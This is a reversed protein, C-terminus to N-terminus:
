HSFGNAAASHISQRWSQRDMPIGAKWVEVIERAATIDATADGNVLVLDARLGPAIRGRDTLHFTSAPVSTAAALAQQATLGAKVLYELEGHMSIGPATGPNGADTGALIRVHAGALPPIATMSFMCNNPQGHNINKKLQALYEAAVYSSLRSDDLLHQGPSENCVSELVSFTPIVFAHREVVLTVFKPDVVEGGFAFLHALGDAGSEIADMAQQESHIHVVALKGRKHAAAVLAQLTPKDISPRGGHGTDGGIEYIIKIFDSGEAIRDDVWRQAGEPGTLTPFRLGYETGHGGPATACYGSSFLDARDAAKNANQEAKEATALQLDMLMSIDTTVGFVASQELDRRSRIHTHADILGPILTRGRGDVVRVNKPARVHSGVKQIKGNRVLVSAQPIVRDGDFVRANQILVDEAAVYPQTLILLLILGTSRLM